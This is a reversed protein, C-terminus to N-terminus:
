PLVCFGAREYGPVSEPWIAVCSTGPVAACQEDGLDTDCIPSCCADAECDPLAFENLCVLGEACQPIDGCPANAPADGPFFCSFLPHDFYCATGHACNQAFPDCHWVCLTIGSQGWMECYSGELCQLDDDPNGACMPHCLGVLEGDIENLNWCSSTEDCDDLGEQHGSSTCPEGPAQDGLIPV